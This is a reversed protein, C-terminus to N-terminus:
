TTAPSSQCSPTIPMTAERRTSRYLRGTTSIAPVSPSQFPEPRETPESRGARAAEARAGLVELAEAPVPGGGAQRDLGLLELREGRREARVGVRHEGVVVEDGDVRTSAITGPGFSM